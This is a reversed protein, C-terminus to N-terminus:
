TRDEPAEIGFAEALQHLVPELEKTLLFMQALKEAEASDAEQEGLEDLVADGFSLKRITLNEGLVFSCRDLSQLALAFVQKGSKLHERIEDTELDQRRCRVISGHEAPDRLECEDGLTMGSPLKGHLLWDTMLARPSEQPSAPTAPFRGLAERLQTVFEEARQRSATDIVLWHRTVDIYGNLRMPTPPAHAIMETYVAERIQKRERAHIARGDADAKQKVRKAVEERLAGGPVKKDWGGLTVHIYGLSRDHHLLRDDDRGFPSVFGRVGSELAGIERLPHQPLADALEAAIRKASNPPFRFLMLNRYFM